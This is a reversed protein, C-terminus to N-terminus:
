DHFAADRAGGTADARGYTAVFTTLIEDLPLDRYAGRDHVYEMHRNGDGDFAHLLADNRGDFTLPETGFRACLEANFAPSVKRWGGDLWLLSYGHFVFLDTGMRAQLTETTLHNRVDAFGLRAPIGVARAAATLVVSKEVCWARQGALVTSAVYADAHTAIDYPDYRLRDRVDTFLAIARAADDAADATVERAYAAVQPHDCDLFRTPALDADTPPGTVPSPAEAPVSM